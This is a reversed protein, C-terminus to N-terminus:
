TASFRIYVVQGSDNCLTHEAPKSGVIIPNCLLCAVSWYTACHQAFELNIRFDHADSFRKSNFRFKEGPWIENESSHSDHIKYSFNVSCICTHLEAETQTLHM